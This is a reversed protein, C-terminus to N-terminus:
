YPESCTGPDPVPVRNIGPDPAIGTENIKKLYGIVLERRADQVLFNFDTAAQQIMEVIFLYRKNQVM